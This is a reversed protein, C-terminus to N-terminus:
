RKDPDSGSDDLAVDVLYEVGCEGPVVIYLFNGDVNKGERYILTQGMGYLYAKESLRCSVSCFSVPM